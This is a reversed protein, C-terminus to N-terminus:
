KDKWTSRFMDYCQRVFRREFILVGCALAATIGGSWLLSKFLGMSAMVTSSQLFAMVIATAALSGSTPVFDLISLTEGRQTFFSFIYWTNWLIRLAMNVCNALIIGQAGLNLVQIFYYAAAAFAAFYLVMLMSQRRLDEGTAVASVFAETIGNFALFPIYYCYTSLIDGANTEAWRKGAILALALPAIRPGISFAFLSILSYLKLIQRLINKAKAIDNKNGTPETSSAGNTTNPKEPVNCLKSFLNRGSEEIPQFLMRTVLSGYNSAIAFAGQESLSTLMSILIADGQTLIYKVSSQVYINATLELLSLSFYGGVYESSNRPAILLSIM